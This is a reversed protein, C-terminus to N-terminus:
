KLKEEYEAIKAKTGVIDSGAISILKNDKFKFTLYTQGDNYNYNYEKDYGYDEDEQEFYSSYDGLTEIMEEPTSGYKLGEYSISSYEDLLAYFNTLFGESMPIDENTPNYISFGVYEGTAKQGGMLLFWHYPYEYPNEETVTNTYDEFNEIYEDYTCLTINVDKEYTEKSVYFDYIMEIAEKTVQKGLELKAGYANIPTLWVRDKVEEQVVEVSEQTAEVNSSSAISFSDVLNKDSCGGLFLITSALLIASAKM